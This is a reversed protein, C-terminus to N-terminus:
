IVVTTHAPFLSPVTVFKEPFPRSAAPDIQFFNISKACSSLSARCHFRGHPTFSTWIESIEPFNAGLVRAEFKTEEESNRLTGVSYSLLM